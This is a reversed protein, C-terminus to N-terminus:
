ANHWEEVVTWVCLYVLALAAVVGVPVDRFHEGWGGCVLFIAIAVYALATALKHFHQYVAAGQENTSVLVTYWVAVRFDLPDPKHINECARTAEPLCVSTFVKM